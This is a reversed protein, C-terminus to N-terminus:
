MWRRRGGGIAVFGFVTLTVPAVPGFSGCAAPSAQGDTNLLGSPVFPNPLSTEAGAVTATDEDPEVDCVEDIMVEDGAAKQASTKYYVTDYAKLKRNIWDFYTKSLRVALNYSSDGAVHVGVLRRTKGSTNYIWVPSGSQGGASDAYHRVLNGTTGASKGYALYLKTGGLDGPYGATNLGRTKSFYSATNHAMVMYGTKHGIAKDLVLVAIDYGREKNNNFYKTLVFKRVVKISGYPKYSGSQGPTFTMNKGWSRNKTVVHACTLVTKRGILVGTGAIGGSSFDARIRGITRYPYSTTSKVYKRTDQGLVRQEAATKELDVVETEVPGEEADDWPAELWPRDDGDEVTIQAWASGCFIFAVVLAALHTSM